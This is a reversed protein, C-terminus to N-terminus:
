RSGLWAILTEVYGVAYLPPGHAAPAHHEGLTMGHGAEPFLRVTVAAESRRLATTWREMSLESPLLEDRGGFFLLVPIRLKEIAPVPDFTAVWAWSARQSPDPLVRELDLAAAWRSGRAAELASKLQGLENGTALYAFYARLAGRARQLENGSVNAQQLAREYRAMEAERPPAGGGTVVVLFRVSPEAGAVLPAFWGSLSIAFVGTRGRDVEPQSTLARVAAAGDGALDELSAATWNGSSEGTGRKDFVLAANGADVLRRAIPLSGQRTQPGSGHLLVIGPFPGGGGPLLLSGALEVDGNKIRIPREEARAALGLCCAVLAIPANGRV